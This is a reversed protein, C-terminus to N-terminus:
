AQPPRLSGDLWPLGYGILLKGSELLADVLARRDPCEWWHDAAPLVRVGFVEGVLRALGIRAPPLSEEAGPAAVRQVIVQFRLPLMAHVLLQYDVVLSGGGALERRFRFLGGEEHLPSEELHYGSAALAQGVGQLLLARFEEHATVPV